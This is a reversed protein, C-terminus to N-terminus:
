KKRKKEQTDKLQIILDIHPTLKEIENIRKRLSKWEELTLKGSDLIANKIEDVLSLSTGGHDDSILDHIRLLNDMEEQSILNTSSEKPMPVGKKMSSVGVKPHIQSM